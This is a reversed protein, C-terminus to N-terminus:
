WSAYMCVSFVHHSIIVAAALLDAVAAALLDAVAAAGVQVLADDASWIADQDRQRQAALTLLFQCLFSSQIKCFSSSLFPCAPSTHVKAVAAADQPLFAPLPREGCFLVM